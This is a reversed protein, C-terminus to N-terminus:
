EDNRRNRRRAIFGLLGLGLFGLAGSPSTRRCCCGGTCQGGGGGDVPDGPKMPELKTVPGKAVPTGTVFVVVQTDEKVGTLRVRYTGDVKPTDVLELKGEGKIDVLVSNEFGPGVYHGKEDRPTLFIDYVNADVKQTTMETTPGYPLVDVQTEITEVRRLPNGDADKTELTFHFRYTGPLETDTFELTYMGADVEKLKLPTADMKTGIQDVFKPDKLLEALKMQYPSKPDPGQEPKREPTPTEHMLTGYASAPREVQVTLDGELGKMPKGEFFLQATLELPQGAWHRQGGLTLLFDLSREDVYSALQYPFNTTSDGGRIVEIKWDGPKGSKPLEFRQLQHSRGVVNAIPTPQSGDPATVRLAVPPKRYVGSYWGLNVYLSRATGDVSVTRAASNTGGPLVANSQFLTSLTNGKLSEVLLGAFAAATGKSTTLRNTGATQQAIVDMDQVFSDAANGMSVTLMPRCKKTLAMEVGPTFELVKKGIDAGMGDKVMPPVNQMGDSMVVVTLDNKPEPLDEWSTVGKAIGGGLATSFAPGKSKVDNSIQTWPHAPGPISGMGRPVFLTDGFSIPEIVSQFYILALRDKSLAVGGTQTSTNLGETAWFDVFQEISDQLAQWKSSPESDGPTADSMSGSRDLVLAIDMPFRGNNTGTPAAAWGVSKVRRRACTCQDKSLASYGTLRYGTIGAFSPTFTVTRSNKTGDMPDWSCNNTDDSLLSYLWYEIVVANGDISVVANDGNPLVENGPVGVPTAGFTITSGGPVAGGLELMAKVRVVAQGGAPTMPTQFSYQAGATAPPLLLLACLVAFLSWRSAM